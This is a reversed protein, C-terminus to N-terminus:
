LAARRKVAMEAYRDWIKHYGAKAIALNEPDAFLLAKALLKVFGGGMDLMMSLVEETTAPETIPEKWQREVADVEAPTIPPPNM